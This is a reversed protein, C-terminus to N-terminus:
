NINQKHTHTQVLSVFRVLYIVLGYTHVHNNTRESGFEDNYLYERIRRTDYIYKIKILESM